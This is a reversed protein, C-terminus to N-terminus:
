KVVVSVQLSPNRKKAWEFIGFMIGSYVITGILFNKMFPLGQAWSQLLGDMGRSLPQLTRIDVGGGIWVKLDSLLWHLVVVSVSALVVRTVTVNNIILKGIVIMLLFIGYMWYWEGYLVGFKWHFIFASIALDSFFLALLPFLFAKWRTFYAGGFLAMAGIPSFSAWPTVRGADPIRMAATLLIMVLLVIFRPNFTKTSM